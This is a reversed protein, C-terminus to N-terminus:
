VLPTSMTSCECVRLVGRALIAAIERCRQSPTMAATNRPDDHMDPM